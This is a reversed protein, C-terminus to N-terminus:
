QKIHMLRDYIRSASYRMIKYWSVDNDAFTLKRAFAGLTDKSFVSVRHIRYADRNSSIWGPRTICAQHYGADHVADVIRQNHDGYPYAFSEIDCQLLEELIHRPTSVEHKLMDDNLTSLRVHSHSHAGIEMGAAQMERLQGRDLMPRSSVGPDTWRSNGGIDRSVIFWTAHMGRRELQEFAWFNDAYGDDFTIVVTRGGASRSEALERLCPTRWGHDALFDLQELFRQRSVAWRWGPVGPEPSVSHYMLVLPGHGGAKRQLHASVPDIM